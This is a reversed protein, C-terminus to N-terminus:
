KPFLEHHKDTAIIDYCTIIKRNFTGHIYTEFGFPLPLTDSDRGFLRGRGSTSFMFFSIIMANSTMVSAAQAGDAVDGEGMLATSRCFVANASEHVFTQSVWVAKGVAVGDGDGRGVEVGV